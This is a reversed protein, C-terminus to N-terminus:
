ERTGPPADAKEDPTRVVPLPGWHEGDFTYGQGVLARVNGGDPASESPAPERTRYRLEVRGSRRRVTIIGMMAETDQALGM